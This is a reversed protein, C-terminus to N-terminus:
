SKPFRALAQRYTMGNKLVIRAALGDGECLIGLFLHWPEIHDLGFEDRAIKGACAIAKKSRPTIRTLNPPNHDHGQKEVDERIQRQLDLTDISILAKLLTVTEHDQLIALTLHETGIWDQNMDNAIIAAMAIVVSTKHSRLVPPINM